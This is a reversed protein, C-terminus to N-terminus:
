FRQNLNVVPGFIREQNGGISAITSFVGADISFAYVPCYQFGLIADLVHTGSNGISVGNVRLDRTIVGYLEFNLSFKEWDGTLAFGYIVRDGPDITRTQSSFGLLDKRQVYAMNYEYGLNFHLEIAGFIKSIVEYIGLTIGRLGLPLRLKVGRDEALLNEDGLPFKAKILASFCPTGNEEKIIGYKGILGIYAFGGSSFNYLGDSINSNGSATLDLINWIYSTSLGINLNRTVGVRIEIPFELVQKSFTTNQLIEPSNEEYVKPNQIDVFKLFQFGEKFLFEDRQLLEAQECFFLGAFCYSKIILFFFIGLLLTKKM